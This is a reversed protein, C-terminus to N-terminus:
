SQRAISLMQRVAVAARSAQDVVACSSVILHKFQLPSIIRCVRRAVNVFHHPHTISVPRLRQVQAGFAELLQAKEAAADDPMAIRCRCGQAAAVM